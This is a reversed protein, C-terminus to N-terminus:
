RRLGARPEGRSSAQLGAAEPSDLIERLVRLMREEDEGTAIPAGAALFLTVGDLTADTGLLTVGHRDAADAATRYLRDLDAVVASPEEALRADLEGALVFAVTALRNEGELGGDATGLFPRLPAPSCSRWISGRRTSRRDPGGPRAPAPHPPPAPRGHPSRRALGRRGFRRDAPRRLIQGAEAARELRVMESTTPGAVFLGRAGSGALVLDVPGSALGISVRLTVPGASTAISGRAAFWQRIAAAAQVARTAADQGDFLVVLADGAFILVDGGRSELEAVLATLVSGILAPWRKPM